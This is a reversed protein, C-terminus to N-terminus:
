GKVVRNLVVTLVQKATEFDSLFLEKNVTSCLKGDRVVEWNGTSPNIRLQLDPIEKISM